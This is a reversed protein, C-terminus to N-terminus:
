RQASVLDVASHRKENAVSRRQARRAQAIARNRVEETLSYGLRHGPLQGKLTTFSGSGRLGSKAAGIPDSSGRGDGCYRRCAQISNWRARSGSAGGFSSGGNGQSRGRRPADGFSFSVEAPLYPEPNARTKRTPKATSAQATEGALAKGRETSALSLCFGWGRERIKKETAAQMATPCPLNLGLDVPCGPRILSSSM